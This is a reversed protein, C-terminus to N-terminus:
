RRDGGRVLQVGGINLADAILQDTQRQWRKETRRDPANGFSALRLKRRLLALRVSRM